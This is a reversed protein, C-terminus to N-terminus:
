RDDRTHVPWAVERGTSTCDEVWAKWRPFIGWVQGAEGERVLTADSLRLWTQLRQPTELTALHWGNETAVLSGASADQTRVELDPVFSVTGAVQLVGTDPELREVTGSLRVAAVTGADRNRYRTRILWGQYHPRMVLAGAPAAWATTPEMAPRAAISGKTGAEEWAALAGCEPCEGVPMAEGPQVRQGLDHIELTEERTGHWCCNQCRATRGEGVAKGGHEM